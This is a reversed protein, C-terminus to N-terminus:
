LLASSVTKPDSVSMCVYEKAYELDSLKGCGEYFLSNGASVDRHVFGAKWMYKLGTSTNTGLVCLVCFSLQRVTLSV